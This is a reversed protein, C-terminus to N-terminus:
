RIKHNGTDSVLAYIDQFMTIYYPYSFQSNTGIGDGYQASNGVFTTVTATSVVLKRIRHNNIDSILVFSGDTSFSLGGPYYFASNSGIGNTSGSGSLLGALTTVVLTSLVLKRIKHNDTDGVLAFTNDPSLSLGRPTTFRANTGVGDAFGCSSGVLTSVMLTSMVLKRIRCNGTDAVFASLMDSALVIATPTSFRSDTGVGDAFAGTTTGAIIAVVQTSMVIKRIRHQDAVLVFTDNSSIEVGSTVSFGSALTTVVATSIIVKRIASNDYDAILVFNGSSSVKLSRPNWFRAMLGTADVFGNFNGSGGGGITSVSRTSMLIKRIMNNNTDSVLAYTSDPSLSIGRPSNFRSSDSSGDNYGWSVYASFGSFISVTKTSMDVKRIRHNSADAILAYTKDNSFITEVPSNFLSVTGVGDTSGARTGLYGGVFTTLKQSTMEFKRIKHNSTDAILWVVHHM